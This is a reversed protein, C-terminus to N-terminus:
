KPLLVDGVVHVIGNATEISGIIPTGNVFVENEKKTIKIRGGYVMEYEDLDQMLDTKLVGVYTHYGLTFVLEEKNEPRLLNNFTTAPLKDFADNNPAFVTYPGADRFADVLNAAELATVFTSHDKSALVGEVINQKIIDENIEAAEELDANESSADSTASSINPSQKCSFFLLLFIFLLINYFNRM